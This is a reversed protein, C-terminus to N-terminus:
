KGPLYDIFIEILHSVVMNYVVEYESNIFCYGIDFMKGM